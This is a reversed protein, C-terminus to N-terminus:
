ILEFLVHLVKFFDLEVAKREMTDDTFCTYRVQKILDELLVLQHLLKANRCFYQVVEGPLYRLAVEFLVRIMICCMDNITKLGHMVEHHGAIELRLQLLQIDKRRKDRVDNVVILVRTKRVLEDNTSLMRKGNSVRILTDQFVVM